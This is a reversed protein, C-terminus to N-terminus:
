SLISGKNSSVVEGMSGLGLQLCVHPGLKTCPDLLWVPVPVIRIKLSSDKLRQVVLFAQVNHAGMCASSVLLVLTLQHKRDAISLELRKGFPGIAQSYGYRWTMATSSVCSRAVPLPGLTPRTLVVIM